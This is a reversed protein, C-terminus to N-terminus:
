NGLGIPPKTKGEKAQLNQKGFAFPLSVSQLLVPQSPFDKLCLFSGIMVKSYPMELVPRPEFIGLAPQQFRQPYIAVATWTARKTLVM